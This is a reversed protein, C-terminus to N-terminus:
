SFATWIAIIIGICVCIMGPVYLVAKCEDMGEGILIAGTLAFLIAFFIAEM